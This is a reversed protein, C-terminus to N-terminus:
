RCQNPSMMRLPHLAVTRRVAFMLWLLVLLVMGSTPSMDSVGLPVGGVSGSGGIVGAGSAESRGVAGTEVAVADNVRSGGGSLPAADPNRRTRSCPGCARTQRM